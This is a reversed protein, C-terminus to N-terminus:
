DNELTKLTKFPIKENRVLQYYYGDLQVIGKIKEVELIKSAAKLGECDNSNICKEIKEAIDINVRTSNRRDAYYDLIVTKGNEEVILKKEEIKDPVFSYLNFAFFPFFERTKLNLALPLWAIFFYVLLFIPLGYYLYKDKIKV